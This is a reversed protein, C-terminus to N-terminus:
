HLAVARSSNSRRPSASMQKLFETVHSNIDQDSFDFQSVIDNVDSALAMNHFPRSTPPHRPFPSPNACFDTRDDSLPPSTPSRFTPPPFIPLHFRPQSFQLKADQLLFQFLQLNYRVINHRKPTLPKSERV